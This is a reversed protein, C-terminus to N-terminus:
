TPHLQDCACSHNISDFIVRIRNYYNRHVPCAAMFGQVTSFARLTLEERAFSKLTRKVPYVTFCWHPSSYHPTNNEPRRELEFICYPENHKLIHSFASALGTPRDFFLIRSGSWEGHGGFVKLLIEFGVPFALSKSIPWRLIQVNDTSPTM